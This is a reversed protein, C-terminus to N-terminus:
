RATYAHGTLTDIETSYRLANAASNILEERAVMLEQRASLYDRYSYRGAQYARQTENLAEKLAPIIENKLQTSAYVADERRSYARFLQTHLHMLLVEKDLALISKDAQAQRLAHKGRKARFLPLSLSATLAQDNSEQFQRVGIAWRLNTKTEAKNLHIEAQNIREAWSIKLLIPSRQIQAYLSEFTNHIPTQFLNGSLKGINGLKDSWLASLARQRYRHESTAHNLHLSEQAAAAKARKVDAEPRAGATAREEIIALSELALIQSELALTLQEQAALLDIYRRTVESMLLLTETQREENVRNLRESAFQQRARRKDGLEFISSLSVSHEALDFGQREGSGLFNESEISLELPPRLGAEQLQSKTRKEKFTYAQLKPANLVSLDIAKKLSLEPLSNFQDNNLQLNSLHHPNLHSNVIHDSSIRDTSIHDTSIRVSSANDSDARNASGEYKITQESGASFAAIPTTASVLVIAICIRVSVNRRTSIISTM